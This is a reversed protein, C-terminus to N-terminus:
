SARQVRKAAAKAWDTVRPGFCELIADVGIVSGKSLRGLVAM